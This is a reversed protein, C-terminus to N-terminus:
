RGDPKRAYIEGGQSIIKEFTDRGGLNNTIYVDDGDDGDPDSHYAVLGYMGIRFFQVWVRKDAMRKLQDMTLPENLMVPCPGEVCPQKVENDSLLPCIPPTNEPTARRLKANEAMVQALQSHEFDNLRELADAAQQMLACHGDRCNHEYGCSFCGVGHSRLVAILEPVEM